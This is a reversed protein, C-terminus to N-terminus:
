RGRRPRRRAEPSVRPAGEEEEKEKEEEEEEEEEEKDVRPARSNARTLAPKAWYL